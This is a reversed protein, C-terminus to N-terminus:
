TVLILFRMRLPTHGTGPHVREPKVFMDHASAVAASGQAIQAQPLPGERHDLLALLVPKTVEPLIARVHADDACLVAAGYFPLNQLFQM